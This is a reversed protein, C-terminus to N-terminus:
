RIINMKRVLTKTGLNLKVIYVGQPLAIASKNLTNWSLSHTGTGVNEDFIKAVTNGHLDIIEIRAVGASKSTFKININERVPNPYIIFDEVIFEDNVNTSKLEVSTINHLSLAWM